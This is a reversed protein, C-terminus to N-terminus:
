QSQKVVKVTKPVVDVSHNNTLTHGRLAKLHFVLDGPIPIPGNKHLAQVPSSIITSIVLVSFLLAIYFVTKGYQKM